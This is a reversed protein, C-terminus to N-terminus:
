KQQFFFKLLNLQDATLDSLSSTSVPLTAHYRTALATQRARAVVRHRGSM